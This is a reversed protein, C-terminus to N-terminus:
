SLFDCNNKDPRSNGNVSIFLDPDGYIASLTVELDNNAMDHIVYYYYESAGSALTDRM